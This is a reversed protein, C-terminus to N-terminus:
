ICDARHESSEKWAAPDAREVSRDSPTGSSAEHSRRAHAAVSEQSHPRYHEHANGMTQEILREAFVVIADPTIGSASLSSRIVCAKHMVELPPKKSLPHTVTFGGAHIVLEAAGKYGSAAWSISTIEKLPISFVGIYQKREQYRSALKTAGDISVFSPNPVKIVKRTIVVEPIGWPSWRFRVLFFWFAIFFFAAGGIRWAFPHSAPPHVLAFGGAMIGFLLFWTNTWSQLLVENEKNPTLMSEPAALPQTAVEGSPASKLTPEERIVHDAHKQWARVSRAERLALLLSVAAVVSGILLVIGYGPKGNHALVRTFDLPPVVSCLMFTAVPLLLAGLFVPIDLDPRAALKRILM